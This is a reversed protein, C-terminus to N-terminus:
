LFRRNVLQYFDQVLEDEENWGLKIVLERQIWYEAEQLINFNNITKVSRDFLSEDGRFLSKIFRFRDNIGFAKRLDQIKTESFKDALVKPFSRQKKETIEKGALVENLEKAKPIELIEMGSKELFGLPIMTIEADKLVGPVAHTKDLPFVEWLHHIREGVNITEMAKPEKLLMEMPVEADEDKTNFLAEEKTLVIFESNATEELVKELPLSTVENKVIGAKEEFNSETPEPEFEEVVIAPPKPVSYTYSNKASPQSSKHTSFSNGANTGYKAELIAEQTNSSSYTQLGVQEAPVPIMNKGNEAISVQAPQFGAPFVVTVPANTHDAAATQQVLEMRMQELLGLLKANDAGSQFSNQLSNILSQFREM